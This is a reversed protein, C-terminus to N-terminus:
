VKRIAEVPCSELAEQASEMYEEPIDSDICKAFADDDLSFVEPCISECAGCGICDENVLMKM